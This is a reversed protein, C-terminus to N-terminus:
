QLKITVNDDYRTYAVIHEVDRRINENMEQYTDTESIQSFHVVIYQIARRKLLSSDLMDAATLLPVVNDKNVNNCLYVECAHYLLDIQYKKSAFLLDIAQDQMEDASPFKCTYLYWVMTRFVNAPIDEVVIKGSTAEYMPSQLMARFVNSRYMLVCRHLKLKSEPPITVEIDSSEADNFLDEMMRVVTMQAVISNSTCVQNLIIHRHITTIFTVTGSEKVVEAFNPFGWSVSASSFVKESETSKSITKKNSTIMTITFTARVEDTSKSMLRCCLCGNHSDKAGTPYIRVAWTNDCLSFTPSELFKTTEISALAHFEEIRFTYRGTLTQVRYTSSQEEIM